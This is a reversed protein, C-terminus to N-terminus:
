WLSRDPAVRSRTSAPPAKPHIVESRVRYAEVGSSAKREYCHLSKLPAVSNRVKSDLTNSVSDDRVDKYATSAEDTFYLDCIMEGTQLPKAFMSKDNISAPTNSKLPGFM